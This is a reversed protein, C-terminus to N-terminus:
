SGGRSRIFPRVAPAVQDRLETVCQIMQRAPPMFIVGRDDMFRLEIGRHQEGVERIIEVSPESLSLGLELASDLLAVINHARWGPHSRDKGHAGLFSKLFLEFAQAICFFLPIPARAKTKVSEPVPELWITGEIPRRPAEFLADAADLYQEALYFHNGPIKMTLGHASYGPKLGVYGAAPSSTQPKVKMKRSASAIM